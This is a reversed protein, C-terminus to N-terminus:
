QSIARLDQCRSRQPNARQAPSVDNGPAGNDLRTGASTELKGERDRVRRSRFAHTLRSMWSGWRSLSGTAAPVAHDSSIPAEPGSGAEQMGDDRIGAGRAAPRPGCRGCPAIPSGARDGPTESDPRVPTRMSAHDVAMRAYYEMVPNYAPQVIYSHSALGNELVRFM